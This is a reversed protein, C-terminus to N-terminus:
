DDGRTTAAGHGSGARNQPVMPVDAPSRDAWWATREAPTAYKLERPLRRPGAPRRAASRRPQQRIARAQELVAKRLEAPSHASGLYFRLFRFVQAREKSRLAAIAAITEPAWLKALDGDRGINDVLKLTEFDGMNLGM